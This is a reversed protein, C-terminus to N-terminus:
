EYRSEDEIEWNVQLDIEGATFTDWFLLHAGSDRPVDKHNPYKHAARLNVGCM